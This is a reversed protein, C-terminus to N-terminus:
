PKLAPQPFEKLKKWLLTMSGDADQRVIRFAVLVDSTHYNISRLVYTTNVLAPGRRAYRAANVTVGSGSLRQQERAGLERSPVELTALFQVAFHDLGVTELPVDGLKALYGWNAGAFGVSLENQQLEIDSGNDYEHKLLSFSYYAGGGHATLKGDYKERPLLRVLGTNPQSLFEAFAARDEASPALFEQEKQRLQERLSQIEKELQARDPSQARGDADVLFVLAFAMVVLSLRFRNM